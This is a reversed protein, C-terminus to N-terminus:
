DDNLTRKSQSLVVVEIQDEHSLIADLKFTPL